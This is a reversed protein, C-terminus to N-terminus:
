VAFSLLLFLGFVIRYWGFARFSHRRVFDVLFRMTVFSVLFAVLFGVLLVGWESKTLVTGEALLKAGRLALAGLMLPVAMFFSFEAAERRGVGLLSAGLITAGSRSTGPILSLVQFCGIGFACASTITHKQKCEEGNKRRTHELVIFAVGYILLTSGVTLLAADGRYLLRELADDLLVGAVGAPLCGIFIRAWLARAEGWAAGGKKAVPCLRGFYGICVALVAGLQIFVLFFDMADNSLGLPLWRELLLLHGTSSIPLWETIGEAVGFVIAKLLDVISM